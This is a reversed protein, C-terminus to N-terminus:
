SGEGREEGAEGESPAPQPKQTAERHREQLLRWEEQLIAATQPNIGEPLKLPEYDM